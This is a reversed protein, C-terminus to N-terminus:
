GREVVICVMIHTKQENKSWRRCTSYWVRTSKLRFVTDSEFNMVGPLKWDVVARADSAFVRVPISVLVPLYGMWVLM